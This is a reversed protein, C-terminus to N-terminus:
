IVHLKLVPARQVVEWLLEAKLTEKDLTVNM